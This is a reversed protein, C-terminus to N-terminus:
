VSEIGARSFARRALSTLQSKAISVLLVVLAGGPVPNKGGSVSAGFAGWLGVSRVERDRCRPFRADADASPRARYQRQKSPTASM